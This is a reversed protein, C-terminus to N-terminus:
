EGINKLILDKLGKVVNAVAPQLKYKPEKVTGILRIVAFKGAEGLLVTTLDKITGTEPELEKSLQASVSFDLEGSFGIKGEGSLDLLNSKLRLNDIHFSKDKLIFDCYGESFVINRFDSPFILEGLGKFLDLQWLKGDSILIRGAGSLKSLDHGFGNLKAQAEVTGSIDKNKIPTDLKLKEIKVDRIDLEASFPYSAGKFNMRATLEIIGDYLALQLLSIQALGFSQNYDMALRDLKLNYVYLEGASLKAQISCSKIDKPNGRLNFSSHVLGTPKIQGLQKQYKKFIISTDSLNLDATGGLDAEWANSQTIDISGGINFASGLYSGKFGAIKVLKDKVALDANLSLQPSSLVLNVLPSKFDSLKGSTKYPLNEYRFGFDPWSLGDETFSLRGNIDELPFSINELQMNAGQINLSGKVQPQGIVPLPTKLVLDLRAEGKLNGPLNFNSKDRLLRQITELGIDGAIRAELLPASFNSLSVDAEMQHGFIKASLKHSTLGSNDINLQGHLDEIRDVIDLGQIDLDSIDAKGICKLKRGEPSYNLNLKLSSNLNALINEKRINLSKIVSDIVADFFGSKYSLDILADILGGNIYLGDKELYVSFNQPSFNKLSIKASLNNETLKFNGRAIIRAPPSTLVEAKLHFTIKDPLGLSVVLQLNDISKSFSPYFTNDQFDIRGGAISIRYILIHFGPSSSSTAEKPLLDLLNISNDIRRELNIRPKKIKISPIIITKKFIPPIIFSCSAEEVSFLQNTGDSIVLGKLVMGKFINFEVSALSVKKGTTREINDIILAKIKEPLFIKNLYVIGGSMLIIVALIVIIIIKKKRPKM